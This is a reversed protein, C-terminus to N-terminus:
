KIPRSATQASHGLVDSFVFRDGFGSSFIWPDLGTEPRAATGQRRIMFNGRSMMPRMVQWRLGHGAMRRGWDGCEGAIVM